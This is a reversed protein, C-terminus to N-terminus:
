QARGRARRSLWTLLNRMGCAQYLEFQAADLGICRAQRVGQYRTLWAIVAEVQWRSRLLTKGTASTNMRQAERMHHNTGALVQRFAWPIWPTADYLKRIQVVTRDVAAEDGPDVAEILLDIQDALLKFEAFGGGVLRLQTVEAFYEHRGRARGRTSLLKVYETYAGLLWLVSTDNVAGAAALAEYPYAVAEGDLDVTLVRATAPLAAPTTPGDYLFPPRNVDDYGQYPHSSGNRYRVRRLTPPPYRHDPYVSAWAVVTLWGVTRRGLM